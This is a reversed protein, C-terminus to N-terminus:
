ISEEDFQSNNLYSVVVNEGHLQSFTLILTLTHHYVHLFSLPKKKLVLFYTDLLEYAKTWMNFYYLWQLSPTYANRNCMTWVLGHTMFKPLLEELMLIFLVLSLVSLFVNHIIFIMNMDIRERKKMYVQLSFISGVYGLVVLILTLSNSFPLKDFDFKMEREGTM